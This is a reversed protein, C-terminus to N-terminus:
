QPEVPLFRTLSLLFWEAIVMLPAGGADIRYSRSLLFDGTTPRTGTRGGVDVRDPGSLPVRTVTIAQDDLIRGIPDSTSDLRLRFDASLRSPVLVSEAYVYARGSTRGQLVATRSLLPHGAAVQLASSTGARGVEHRTRHADVPEGVLRELFATVTGDGRSLAKELQSPTAM